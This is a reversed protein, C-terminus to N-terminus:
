FLHDFMYFSPRVSLRDQTQITACVHTFYYNHTNRNCVAASSINYRIDQTNEKFM